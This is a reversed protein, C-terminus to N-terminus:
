SQAADIDEKICLDLDELALEVSYRPTGCIRKASKKYHMSARYEGNIVSMTMIGKNHLAAEVHKIVTLM